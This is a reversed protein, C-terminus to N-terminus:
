SSSSAAQGAAMQVFLQTTDEYVWSEVVLGDAIEHIGCTALDSPLQCLSGDHIRNSGFVREVAHLTGTRNERWWPARRCSRADSGAEPATGDANSESRVNVLMILLEPGPSLPEREPLLPSCATLNLEPDFNRAIVASTARAVAPMTLIAGVADADVAFDLALTFVIM